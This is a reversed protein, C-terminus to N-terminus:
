DSEEKYQLEIWHGDPDRILLTEGGEIPIPGHVIPINKEELEIIANTFDDVDLCFSFTFAAPNTVPFKYNPILNLKILIRDLEIIAYKDTEELIECDLIDRYFELSKKLNATGLSIHDLNEIVVM